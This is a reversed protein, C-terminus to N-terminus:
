RKENWLTQTRSPLKVIVPEDILRGQPDQPFAEYIFSKGSSQKAEESSVVYRYGVVTSDPAAYAQVTNQLLSSVLEPERGAEEETNTV